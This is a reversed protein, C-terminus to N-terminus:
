LKVEIAFEDFAIFCWGINIAHLMLVSEKNIILMGLDSNYLRFFEKKVEETESICAKLSYDYLKKVDKNIDPM